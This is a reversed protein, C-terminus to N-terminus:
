ARFITKKVADLQRGLSRITETKKLDFDRFIMYKKIFARIQFSRKGETMIMYKPLIRYKILDYVYSKMTSYKVVGIILCLFRALM